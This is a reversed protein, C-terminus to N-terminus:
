EEGATPTDLRMGDQMLKKFENKEKFNSPFKGDHSKKWEDLCYLILILYPVHGHEHDDMSQLDKTKLSAYELLAPWPRLLRLDTTAPPDPHTDVIPFDHPLQVAFSIYFGVSHVYLLPVRRTQCHKSISQLTDSKVPATIM